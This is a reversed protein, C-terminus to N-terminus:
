PACEWEYYTRTGPLPFATDIYFQESYDYCPKRCVLDACKTDFGTAFVSCDLAFNLCDFYKNCVIAEAEACSPQLGSGLTSKSYACVQKKNGVIATATINSATTIVETAVVGAMECNYTKITWQGTTCRVYGITSDENCGTITITASGCAGADAHLINVCNETEEHELTFGTGSVTWTLPTNNATVYINESSGAAIEAASTEYNYDIAYNYNITIYVEDLVLGYVKLSIRAQGPCDAGSAPATYTVSKGSEASLEGPGSVIKWIYLSDACSEPPNSVSLVQSGSLEMEASEANIELVKTQDDADMQCDFGGSPLGGRNRNFFGGPGYVLNSPTTTGPGPIPGNGNGPPTWPTDPGPLPGDLCPPIYSNPDGPEEGEIDGLDVWGMGISRLLNYSRGEEDIIDLLLKTRMALMVCIPDFPENFFREIWGQDFGKQLLPSTKAEGKLPELNGTEIAIRLSGNDIAKIIADQSIQLNLIHHIDMVDFPSIMNDEIKRLTLASLLNILRMRRVFPSPMKNSRLESEVEASSMGSYIAPRVSRYM